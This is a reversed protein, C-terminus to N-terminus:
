KSLAELIASIPVKTINTPTDIYPNSYCAIEVKRATPNDLINILPITDRSNNPKFDIYVGPYEAHKSEKIILTGHPTKVEQKEM